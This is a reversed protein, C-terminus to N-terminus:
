SANIYGKGGSGKQWGDIAFLIAIIVPFLGITFIGLIFYIIVMILVFVAAPVGLVKQYGLYLYGLGFFLNLFAAVFASKGKPGGMAPAPGPSSSMSLSAGCKSCFAAGDPNQTGCNPCFM